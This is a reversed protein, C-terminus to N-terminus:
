GADLSPDIGSACRTVLRLGDQSFIAQESLLEYTTNYVDCGCREPGQVIFIASGFM